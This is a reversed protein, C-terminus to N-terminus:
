KKLKERDLWKIVRQKEIRCYDRFKKMKSREVMMIFVKNMSNKVIATKFNKKLRDNISQTAYFGWVKRTIEHRKNGAVILSIMENNKLKISGIEKINQKKKLGTQFNRPNTLKNFKM